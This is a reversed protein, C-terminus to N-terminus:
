EEAANGKSMIEVSDKLKRPHNSITSDGAPSDFKKEPVSPSEPQPENGKRDNRCSLLVISIILLISYTRM